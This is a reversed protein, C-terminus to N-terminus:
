LISQCSLQELGSWNKMRGVADSWPDNGNTYQLGTQKGNPYESWLIDKEIKLYENLILDHDIKDIVNYLM